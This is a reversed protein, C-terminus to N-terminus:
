EDKPNLLHLIGLTISLLLLTDAFRLFANAEIGMFPLLMLRSIIALVFSILAGALALYMIKKCNKM